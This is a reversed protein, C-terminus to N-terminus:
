HMRYLKVLQLKEMNFFDSDLTWLLSNNEQVITTILLDSIGFTFGAEMSKQISTEVSQFTKVSPYFCPIAELLSQLKTFNKKGSGNLIELRVIGTIGIQDETLLNQLHMSVHSNAKQFFEIWISSDVFIL